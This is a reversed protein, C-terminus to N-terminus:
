RQQLAVKGTAEFCLTRAIVM